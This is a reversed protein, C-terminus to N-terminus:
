LILLLIVQHISSSSATLKIKGEFGEVLKSVPLVTREGGRGGGKWMRLRKRKGERDMVLGSVREM